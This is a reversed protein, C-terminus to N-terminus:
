EEGKLEGCLRKMLRRGDYTFINLYMESVYKESLEKNKETGLGETLMTCVMPLLCDGGGNM